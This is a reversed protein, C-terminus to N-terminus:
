YDEAVTVGGDIVYEQGTIMTAAPGALFLCLEAIQAPEVLEALGTM